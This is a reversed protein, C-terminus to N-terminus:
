AAEASSTVGREFISTQMEQSREESRTPARVGSDPLIIQSGWDSDKEKYVAVEEAGASCPVVEVCQIYKVRAQSDEPEVLPEVAEEDLDEEPIENAEM